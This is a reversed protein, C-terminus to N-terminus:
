AAKRRRLALLSIGGLTALAITTPEPVPPLLVMAPMNGFDTATGAPSGGNGLPQSFTATAAYVTPLGSAVALAYTAYNGTWMDLTLTATAGGAQLSDYYTTSSNDLFLGGGIADSAASGNPFTAPSGDPNTNLTM